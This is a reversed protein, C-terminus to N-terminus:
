GLPRGVPGSGGGALGAAEWWVDQWCTKQQDLHPSWSIAESGWGEVM